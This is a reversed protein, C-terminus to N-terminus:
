ATEEPAPAPEAKKPKGKKAAKRKAPKKAKKKAPARPPRPEDHWFAWANVAHGVVAMGALNLSAYAGVKEHPSRIVEVRGDALVTAKYEQGKHRAFFQRGPTLERNQITDKAPTRRELDRARERKVTTSVPEADKTAALAKEPTDAEVEWRADILRRVEYKPM